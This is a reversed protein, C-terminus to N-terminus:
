LRMFVELVWHNIILWLRLIRFKFLRCTLLAVLILCLWVIQLSAICLGFIAIYSIYFYRFDANLALVYMERLEFARLGWWAILIRFRAILLFLFLFNGSWYFQFLWVLCHLNSLLFINIKSGVSCHVAVNSGGVVVNKTAWDILDVFTSHFCHM